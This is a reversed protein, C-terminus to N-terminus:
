DGRFSTVSITCSIVYVGGLGLGAEFNGLVFRCAVLAGYSKVVGEAITLIGCGFLLFSLWTPPATKRVILNSPVEFSRNCFPYCDDHLPWLDSLVFPVFIILLAM